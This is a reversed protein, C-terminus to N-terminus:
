ESKNKHKLYYEKMYEKRKKVFEPDINKRKKESANSAKIHMQRFADDSQYRARVKANIKKKNNIRYKSVRLKVKGKDNHYENMRYALEKAQGNESSRYAKKYLADCDKCIAQNKSFNDVPKDVKCKYCKKVDM